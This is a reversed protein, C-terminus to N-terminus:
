EGGKEALKEKAAMIHGSVAGSSIGLKKAIAEYTMTKRLELVEKQRKTLLEGAALGARVRKMQKRLRAKNEPQQTWHRGGYSFGSENTAGRPKGPRGPKLRAPMGNMGARRARTIYTNVTHLTVGLKEAIRERSMGRAALEGVKQVRDGVVYTQRHPGLAMEVPELSQDYGTGNRRLNSMPDAIGLLQGNTQAHLLDGVRHALENESVKHSRAIDAILQECKAFAYITVQQERRSTKKTPQM